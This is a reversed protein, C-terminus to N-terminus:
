YKRATEAKLENEDRKYTTTSKMAVHHPGQLTRAGLSSAMLLLLGSTTKRFTSTSLNSTPLEQLANTQM